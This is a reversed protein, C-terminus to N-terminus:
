KITYILYVGQYIGTPQHNKVLWNLSTDAQKNLEIYKRMSLLLSGKTPNASAFSFAKNNKVFQVASSDSQGYDISSDMVKEYVKMKNGVLENTYPIIYPYYYMVSSVLGVWLFAVLWKAKSELLKNITIGLLVYLLPIILLLHRIGIQFQNFFSLMLFFYIAPLVLLLWYKKHTPKYKVIAFVCGLLLLILIAIPIKYVTVVLYYYWFGDHLNIQGLIYVGTYTNSSSGGLQAHYQLLDISNIYSAPVPIPLWSFKKQLSIFSASSFQYSGLTKFTDKCFFAVNIILLIIIIFHLLKKWEIRKIIFFILVWFLPIFFLFTHKTVLGIGLFLCSLYFSKSSAQYLYKYLYYIIALLFFGSALDSNILVAYAMILPDFIFFLFVAWWKKVNLLLLFKYLYIGTLISFVIMMYRGEKQDQRGYDTLQYNPNIIQRIIRPLWVIAIVPTKSDDLPEIREPKGHLWRKSYEIYSPEDHTINQFSIFYFSLCVHVLMFAVFLKHQSIASFIHLSKIKM